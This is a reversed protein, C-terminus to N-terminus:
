TFLQLNDNSLQQQIFTMLIEVHTIKESNFKVYFFGRYLLLLYLNM